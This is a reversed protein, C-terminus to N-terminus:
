KDPGYVFKHQINILIKRKINIMETSQTPMANTSPWQPARLHHRNACLHLEHAKRFSLVEETHFGKM